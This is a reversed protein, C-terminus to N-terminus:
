HNMSFELCKPIAWKGQWEKPDIIKGDCTLCNGKEDKKIVTLKGQALGDMIKKQVTVASINKCKAVASIGFENNRLDMVSSVSDPLASDEVTKNKFQLYNGREHAQGIKFAQKGGIELTLSAMWYAHKFADLKGGLNDAGIVGTKKVSDVVREVQHTVKVAKKTKFPHFVVWSKEPRSLKQFSQACVQESAAFLVIMVLCFNRPKVKLNM